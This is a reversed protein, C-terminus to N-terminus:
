GADNARAFITWVWVCGCAVGLMQLRQHRRRRAAESVVAQYSEASARIREDTGTVTPAQESDTM